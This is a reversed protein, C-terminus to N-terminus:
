LYSCSEMDKLIYSFIDLFILWKRKFMGVYMNILCQMIHMKEKRILPLTGKQTCKYKFMLGCWLIINFDDSTNYFDINKKKIAALLVNKNM